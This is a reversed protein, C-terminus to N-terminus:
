PADPSAPVVDGSDASRDSRRRRAELVMPAVAPAIMWATIAISPISYLNTTMADVMFAALGLTPGLIRPDRSRLFRLSLAIALALALAAFVGSEAGLYLLSNHPTADAVGFPTNKYLYFYKMYQDPGVGFWPHDVFMRWGANWLALRDNDFNFMRARLPTAFFVAACVAVIPVWVRPRAAALLLIVVAAGALAIPTRSLTFVLAVLILVASAWWGWRARGRAAMALGVAMPLTMAFFGGIFTSAMATTGTIRGWVFMGGIVGETYSIGILGGPGYWRLAYSVLGFAAEFVSVAVLARIMRRGDSPSRILLYALAVVVANLLWRVPGSALSHVSGALLAAILTFPVVLALAFAEPARRVTLDRWRGSRLVAILGVAAAALTSLDSYDLFTGAVAVHPTAPAIAVLATFAVTARSTPAADATHRARPAPATSGVDTM